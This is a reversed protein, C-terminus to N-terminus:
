VDMMLSSIANEKYERVDRQIDKICNEIRVEQTMAATPKAYADWQVEDAM